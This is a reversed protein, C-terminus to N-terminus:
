KPAELTYEYLFMHGVQPDPAGSYYMPTESELVQEFSGGAVLAQPDWFGLTFINPGLMVSSSLATRM